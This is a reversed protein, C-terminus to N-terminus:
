FAKTSRIKFFVRLGEVYNKVSSSSYRKHELWKRFRDMSEQYYVGLPVDMKEVLVGSITGGANRSGKSGPTIRKKEKKIASYDNYALGKFLRFVKNLDFLGKELYWVRDVDSWRVDGLKRIVSVLERDYAFRMCIVPRGGYVAEKLIIKKNM